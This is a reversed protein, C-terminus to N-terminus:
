KVTSPYETALCFEIEIFGRSQKKVNPIKRSLERLGEEAEKKSFSKTPKDRSYGLYKCARSM